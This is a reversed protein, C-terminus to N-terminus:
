VPRVQPRQERELAASGLMVESAQGGTQQNFWIDPRPLVALWFLTSM